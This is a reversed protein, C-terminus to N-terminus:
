FIVCEEKQMKITKRLVSAGTDVSLWKFEYVYNIFLLIVTKKM